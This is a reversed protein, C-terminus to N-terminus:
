YANAQFRKQPLHCGGTVVVTRAYTWTQINTSPVFSCTFASQLMEGLSFKCVRTGINPDTGKGAIRMSVLKM